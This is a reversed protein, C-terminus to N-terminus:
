GPPQWGALFDKAAEAPQPTSFLYGQAEDCGMDALRQMKALTEVGEAIVKRRFAHATAIIAKVVATEETGDEMNAIVGRDIKVAQIPLRQLYRLSSYGTGFNDIVVHVGLKHLADLIPIIHQIDSFVSSETVEIELMSPALGKTRLCKEISDVFGPIRLERASLNIAVRIDELGQQAWLNMQTTAQCVVWHAICDGLDEVDTVASILRSPMVLGLEPSKWRLLGEFGVVKHRVLDIKPMYHLSLEQRDIAFRLCERIAIRDLEIPNLADSFFICAGKGGRKARYMAEDAHRLLMEATDGDSPFLGVGISGSITATEGKLGFPRELAELLRHGLAEVSDKDGIDPMIITFEDGGLRSVTDCSRVTGSMRQSAAKLLLDGAEHGLTDNVGKFGDLDIFLLALQTGRTRARDLERLLIDFFRTRNPLGTLLDHHAQHRIREEAKRREAVEARLDRTREEVLHELNELSQRLAAVARNEDTIDRADVMFNRTGNPDLPIFAMLVERVEMNPLIVKTPIQVAERVLSPLESRIVESYDRQLIDWLPLGIIDAANKARLLQLGAKNVFEIIGDSCLFMSDIANNVLERYRTESRLIARAANLKDSIDRGIVLMTGDDKGGRICRLDVDATTGDRRMMKTPVPAHEEALISLVGEGLDGGYAPHLLEVFPQGKFSEATEARLIAAGAPNMLVIRGQQCVACLFPSFAFYREGWDALFAPSSM